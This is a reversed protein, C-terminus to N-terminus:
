NVFEDAHEAVYLFALMEVNEGRILYAQNLRSFVEERQSTFARRAASRQQFDEPLGDPGFVQGAEDLIRASEAAGM